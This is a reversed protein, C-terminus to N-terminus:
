YRVCNRSLIKTASTATSFFRSRGTEAVLERRLMYEEDGIYFIAEVQAKEKGKRVMDASLKEGLLFQIAKLIFTKGAGTEGTLVNMGQTFDLETDDILALDRIRLYELM